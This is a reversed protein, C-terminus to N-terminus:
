SAFCMYCWPNCTTITCGNTAIRYSLRASHWPLWRVLGAIAGDREAGVATKLNTTNKWYDISKGIKSCGSPTCAEWLSVDLTGKVDLIEVKAQARCIICTGGDAINM